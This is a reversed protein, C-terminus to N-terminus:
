AAVDEQDVPRAVGVIGDAPVLGHPEQAGPEAGARHVHQGLPPLRVPEVQPPQVLRRVAGRAEALAAPLTRFSLREGAGAGLPALAGPLAYTEHLPADEGQAIWAAVTDAMGGPARGATRASTFTRVEVPHCVRGGHARVRDFLARDEALPPSPAGGIRRYLGLTLAVSAGGEYYHRPWPESPDAAARLRDILLAYRGIADLRRKAAPGADAREARTTLARGAVADWGAALRRANAAIWDPAVLTDADTSLLLDSAHGLLDAAADLACARAVGAHANPPPLSAALRHLTLHRPRLGDLVAASNDACNNAFAVAHVAGPWREAARDLAAVCAGIRGAEDRLPIAVAAAPFPPPAAPPM